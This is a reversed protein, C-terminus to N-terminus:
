PRLGGGARHLKGTLDALIWSVGATLQVEGATGAFRHPRAPDELGTLIRADRWDGGLCVQAIAKLGQVVYAGAM